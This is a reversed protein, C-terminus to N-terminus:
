KANIDNQGGNVIDAFAKLEAYSSIEYCNGTDDWSIHDNPLASVSMGGVAVTGLIMVFTLLVSIAKKMFGGGM